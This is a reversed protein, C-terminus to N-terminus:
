LIDFEFFRISESNKVYLAYSGPPLKSELNIEIINEKVLKLTPQVYTNKKPKFNKTDFPIHRDNKKLVAKIIYVTNILDSGKARSRLVFYFKPLRDESVVASKPGKAFVYQEVSIDNLFPFFVDSLDNKNQVPESSFNIDPLEIFKGKEKKIYCMGSRLQDINEFEYKNEELITQSNKQAKIDNNVQPSSSRDLMAMVITDPINNAKLKILQDSSLNYKYTVSTTIKKLIIPVSVGSKYLQIVKENTLSDAQAFLTGLGLFILFISITLRM